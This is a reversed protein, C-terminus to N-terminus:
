PPTVPVKVLVTCALLPATFPVAVTVTVELAAGAGSTGSPVAARFPIMAPVATVHTLLPVILAFTDILGPFVTVPNGGHTIVPTCCRLSAVAMWFWISRVAAYLWSAPIGHGGAFKM